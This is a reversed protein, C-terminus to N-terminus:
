ARRSTRENQYGVQSACGAARTSSLLSISAGDCRIFNWCTASTTRSKSRTTSCVEAGDKEDSMPVTLASLSILGDSLGAGSENTSSRQNTWYKRDHLRYLFRASAQGGARNEPKMVGTGCDSVLAPRGTEHSREQNDQIRCSPCAQGPLMRRCRRCSM